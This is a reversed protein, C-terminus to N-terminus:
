EADFAKTNVFTTDIVISDRWWHRGQEALERMRNNSNALYFDINKYPTYGKNNCYDLYKSQVREIEEDSPFPQKTDCHITFRGMTRRNWDNTILRFASIIYQKATDAPYNKIWNLWDAEMKDLSLRYISKASNEFVSDNRVRIFLKQFKKEGYQEILYKTLATNNPYDLIGSSNDSLIKRISVEKGEYFRKKMWGNCNYRKWLGGDGDCYEAFGESLFSGNYWPYPVKAKCSKVYEFIHAIEHGLSHPYLCIITNFWPIAFAEGTPFFTGTLLRLEPLSNVFCIDIKGPIKVGLIKSIYQYHKELYDMGFRNPKTMGYIVEDDDKKTNFIFRFHDTELRQWGMTLIDWPMVLYYKNDDNVMYIFSSDKNIIASDKTFTIFEIKGWNGDFQCRIIKTSDARGGFLGLEPDVTQFGKRRDPHIYSFAMKFDKKALCAQFEAWAAKITDPNVKKLNKYAIPEAFSVGSFVALLAMAFLYRGLSLFYNM